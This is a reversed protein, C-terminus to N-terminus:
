LKKRRVWIVIGAVAIFLPALVVCIWFIAIGQNQSLEIKSDDEDKARISIMSEDELIWSVSNLFLDLNGGFRSYQNNAFQGSGFVVVRTERAARSDKQKGYSLAAASLPGALDRGADYHASGKALGALDTESFAKPTSKALWATKLGEPAPNTLDVPRSVPFFAQATFDKGIATDKNFQTMMPVSADVGLMKSVPDIMLGNKVEIGYRSVLNRLEQNQDRETLSADIGVVLRGGQDLYESLMKWEAPFLAKSAGMMVLGSCDKPISSEQPLVIERVQYSQDELGKKASSFGTAGSDAFSSEGHGQLACVTIAGERTIKILENTIKEETIEEVRSTRGQHTLVLTDIKKIGAAKARTPERVPDVWEFQFQSSGKKYNDFIRRYKERSSLEGYFVAEVPSKLGKLVKSTQDSFTHIRNRTLDLKGPYQKGLFNLLGVLAVITLTLFGSYIGFSLHRKQQEKDTNM